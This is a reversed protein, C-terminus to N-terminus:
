DMLITHIRKFTDFMAALHDYHEIQTTPYSRHLGLVDSVFTDAFKQWDNEPFAIYHANLNGTAGGFKSAYPIQHLMKIQEKLRVVFVMIEKGLYTPSAAQGHTRALMPVDKHETALYNLQNVLSELNPLIVDSLSHKLSLPVATNNIDQSTLGF